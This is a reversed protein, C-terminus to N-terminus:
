RRGDSRTYCKSVDEPFEEVIEATEHVRAGLLWLVVEDALKAYLLQALPGEGFRVRHLNREEQEDGAVRSHYVHDVQYTEWSRCCCGRELKQHFPVFYSIPHLSNNLEQPVWVLALLEELVGLEHGLEDLLQAAEM